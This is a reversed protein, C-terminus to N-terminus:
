NRLMKALSKNDKPVDVKKGDGGERLSTTTTPSKVAAAKPLSEILVDVAADDSMKAMSEILVNSAKVGKEAIKDRIKDKRQLVQVQELLQKADPTTTTVASETTPKSEGDGPPKPKEAEGGGSLKEQAKLIDKIKMLTAKSDLKDDDFAAIVMARFASKIQDDTSGGGTEVTPTDAVPASMDMAGESEFLGRNTAPNRVLDLSRVSPIGEVLRNDKSMRGEANHSFGLQHPMRKAAEVVLANTPHTKLYHYDGYVGDKRVHANRIEGMGECLKRETNPAARPPHDENVGLGEYLRAADQLARDSYKHGHKSDRGLLRVGYIVGSEEDIKLTPNNANYTEELLPRSKVKSANM